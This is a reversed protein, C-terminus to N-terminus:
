AQAGKKEKMKVVIKQLVALLAYGIAVMLVITIWNTFNWSLITREAAM